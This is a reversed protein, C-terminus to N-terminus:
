LNRSEKYEDLKSKIYYKLGRIMEIVLEKTGKVALLEEYEPTTESVIKARAVSPSEDMCRALCKNYIMQRSKLEENVNGLLATLEYVIEGARQMSIDKDRVEEQLKTIMGRISSM